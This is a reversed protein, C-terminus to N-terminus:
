KQVKPVWYTSRGKIIEDRKVDNGLKDKKQMYVLFEFEEKDDIKIDPHYNPLKGKKILEKHKPMFKELRIMYGIINSVYCLKVTKKITKALLLIDNDSFDGLIRHPSIKARYLIEVSLYNGIGSGISDKKDQSMLFKVIPINKKSKSKDIFKKFDDLYENPSFNTKLLDPALKDLKKNLDNIDTTIFLTGFNRDDTFYLTYKKDNDKNKINIKFRSNKQKEFGWDGTLGFTNMIYIKENNNNELEFWLFKGKSDIKIIKIPNNKNLLELGELKEHTYRGSIISAGTIYRNKIKTMLYEATVAIECVEPM